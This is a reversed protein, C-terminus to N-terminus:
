VDYLGKILPRIETESLPAIGKMRVMEGVSEMVASHVAERYMNSNDERFFTNPHFLSEYIPGLWPIETLSEDLYAFSEFMALRMLSWFFTILFGLVIIGIVTGYNAMITGTTGVIVVSAIIYDWKTAERRRDFLRSSVFFGTGFPAACIEFALRERRLQFYLRRKSFVTSERLLIFDNLLDPVAKEELRKEVLEYFETPSFSCNDFLKCWYSLPRAKDAVQPKAEKIQKRSGIAAELVEIPAETKM